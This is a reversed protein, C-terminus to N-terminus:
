RRLKKKVPIESAYVCKVGNGMFDKVNRIDRVLKRLGEGELSAAQDSGWMTRDLTIHREVSCAGMAVAITSPAIGREHGSYGVLCKYREKLAPIVKLNIENNATPYTSTCHYLILNDTGLIEVARDIEELTSMGSSLLIPKNTSKVKNLLAENTLLASPIKHACINFQEMFDVSKVDWCSALWDIGLTKCYKDIESYEDYGFELGRKLDGNTDGFVSERPASLEEPTYVDEITRKQFKVADCGYLHAMNILKKANALSGNHNIGIEAIIFCPCEDGYIKNGIKIKM